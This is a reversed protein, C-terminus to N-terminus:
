IDKPFIYENMIYHAKENGKVSGKKEKKQCRSDKDREGRLTSLERNSGDV